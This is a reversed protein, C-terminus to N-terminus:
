ANIIRARTKQKYIFFIPNPACKGATQSQIYLRLASSKSKSAVLEFKFGDKELGMKRGKKM